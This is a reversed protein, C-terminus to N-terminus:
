CGDRALDGLLDRAVRAPLACGMGTSGADLVKWAGSRRRLTFLAGQVVDEYGRKAGATALAYRSNVTSVRVKIVTKTKWQPPISPRILARIAAGEEATAKRAADAESVAATTAGVGVVALGALLAATRAFARM